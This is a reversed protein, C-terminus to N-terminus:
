SKGLPSRPWRLARSDKGSRSIVIERMTNRPATVNQDAIHQSRGPSVILAVVSVAWIV